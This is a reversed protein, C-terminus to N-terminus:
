ATPQCDPTVWDFKQENWMLVGEPLPHKGCWLPFNPFVDEFNSTKFLKEQGEPWALFHTGRVKQLTIDDDYEWPVTKLVYGRPSLPKFHRSAEQRGLKRGKEFVRRFLEDLTAAIEDSALALQLIAEAAHEHGEPVPIATYAMQNNESDAELWEKLSAFNHGSVTASAKGKNGLWLSIGVTLSSMKNRRKV